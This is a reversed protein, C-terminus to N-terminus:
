GSSIPAAPWWGTWVAGVKSFFGFRQRSSGAYVRGKLIHNLHTASCADRELFNDSEWRM